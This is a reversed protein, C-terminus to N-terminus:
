RETSESLETLEKVLADADYLRGLAELIYAPHVVVSRAREEEYAYRGVLSEINGDFILGVLAGERNVVPSGSNGGIIDATTVFNAPTSLDLTERREWYRQPLAFDGTNDFGVARDFLGYLTTEHPARTGNMPYGSVTGFAIRLTGTADPYTGRGYLDFRATALTEGADTLVSEVEDRFWQQELRRQADLERTLVILPDDSAEVAARGGEILQRRFEVETLRTSELLQTAVAQPTSDGLVAAV